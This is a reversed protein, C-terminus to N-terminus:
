IPTTTDNIYLMNYIDRLTLDISCIDGAFYTEEINVTTLTPDLIAAGSPEEYPNNSLVSIMFSKPATSCGSSYNVTM